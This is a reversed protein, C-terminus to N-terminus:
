DQGLFSPQKCYLSDYNYFCRAYMTRVCARVCVCLSVRAEDWVEAEKVVAGEKEENSVSGDVSVERGLVFDDALESIFGSDVNSRGGGEGPECTVNTGPVALIDVSPPKRENSTEPSKIREEESSEAAMTDLGKSERDTDRFRLAISEPRDEKPGPTSERSSSRRADSSM